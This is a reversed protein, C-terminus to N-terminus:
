RKKKKKKGPGGPGPPGNTAPGRPEPRQERQLQQQKQAEELLQSWRERWGAMKKGLWGTPDGREGRYERKRAPPRAAREAELKEIDKPLLRREIMGWISSAIFYIALGAPSKYFFFLMFIMMIKMTKQQMQVQPDDSKPMMKSQTYMMLGVAILPLLNFYPGLYLAGAWTEPQQDM